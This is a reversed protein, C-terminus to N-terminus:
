GSQEKQSWTLYSPTPPNSDGYIRDLNKVVTKTPTRTKAGVIQKLIQFSDKNGESQTSKVMLLGTSSPACPDTEKGLKGQKGFIVRKEVSGSSQVRPKKTVDVSQEESLSSTRRKKPEPLVATIVKKVAITSSEKLKIRSSLCLDPWVSDIPLLNLCPVKESSIDPNKKIKIRLQGHDSGPRNEKSTKQAAVVKSATKVIKRPYEKISSGAKQASSQPNASENSGRRPKKPTKPKIVEIEEIDTGDADETEDEADISPFYSPDEPDSFQGNESFLEKDSGASVSDTPSEEPNREVSLTSDETVADKPAEIALM